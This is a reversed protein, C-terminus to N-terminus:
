ESTAWKWRRGNEIDSIATRSVSFVNAVNQQTRTKRMQKIKKIDEKKLKSNGVREGRVATKHLVSDEYNEKFTAWRLHSPNICGMNGRGCSHAAVVGDEPEGYIFICVERHVYRVKGGYNIQAYGNADKAYPWIMCEKGNFKKAEEFFEVTKGRDIGGGLPHGNRKWRTWHASCWGRAMFPKSCGDISCIKGTTM